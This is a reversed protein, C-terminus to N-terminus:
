ADLVAVIEHTRPNVVVIQDGVLFYQYGRWSPYFTVLQTPVAYFRVNRPVRTGVSISFNVNTVPRVNQKQIATRITTRQETSLSASTGAAGQGTTTVAKTDAPKATDLPKTEGAKAKGEANMENISKPAPKTESTTAKPETVAPKSESSTAKPKMDQAAKGGTKDQAQGAKMGADPAKGKSPEMAPAIKEAPASQPKEAPASQQAAPAQAFAVGMGTALAAAAVSMLLTRSHNM